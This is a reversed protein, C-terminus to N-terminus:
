GVTNVPKREITFLAGYKRDDSRGHFDASYTSFDPDAHIRMIKHQQIPIRILLAFIVWLFTFLLFIINQLAPHERKLASPKEQLKTIRESPRPIHLIYNKIL